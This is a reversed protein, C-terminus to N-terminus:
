TVLVKGTHTRAIFTENAQIKKLEAREGLFERWAWPLPLHVSHTNQLRRKRNVSGVAFAATSKGRGVCFSGQFATYSVTFPSLMM